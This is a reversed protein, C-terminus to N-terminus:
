HDQISRHKVAGGGDGNRGGEKEMGGKTITAANVDRKDQSSKLEEEEGQGEMPLQGTKFKIKQEERRMKDQAQCLFNTTDMGKTNQRKIGTNNILAVYDPALKREEKTPMHEVLKEAAM